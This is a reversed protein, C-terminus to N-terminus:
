ASLASRDIHFVDHGWQVSQLYVETVQNEPIHLEGSLFAVKSWQGQETAIVLDLIRSLPSKGSLLATKVDPSVALQQLIDSLPRELVTDIMSLLGLLFLDLKRESLGALPALGECFRARTVVANMLASPRDEGMGSLAVLSTWKRLEDIGLLALAHRISKIEVAFGFLASNLYRLLRYVLSPERKIISELEAFDYEERNIAQLLWLYNFKFAPLERGSLTEPKSFFYGQFYNYGMDRAMRFQERTEVKEAVMAIGRPGYSRALERCVKPPTMLFDVKILDAVTTLPQLERSLVFDDLALLYGQKKLEKCARLLDMDMSATELVELVVQDNPLLTAYGRLLLNRTFNLFARHGNTLKQLGFLLFSDIVVSSSARDPDESQFFAELGARFFLEYAFVNEKADLIPQRAVFKRM